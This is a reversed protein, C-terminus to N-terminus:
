RFTMRLLILLAIVALTGVSWKILWLGDEIHGLRDFIRALHKNTEEGQPEHHIKSVEDYLEQAMRDRAIRERQEANLDDDGVALGGRV